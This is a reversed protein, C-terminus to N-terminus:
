QTRNGSLSNLKLAVVYKESTAQINNIFCNDIEDVNMIYVSYIAM